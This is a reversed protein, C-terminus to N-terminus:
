GSKLDISFLGDLRMAFLVNLGHTFGALYYSILVSNDSNIKQLEIVRSQTWVTHEDPGVAKSWLCLRSNEVIASGLGGNETATLMASRRCQSTRPPLGIVYIRSTGLDYKIIRSGSDIQNASIFCLANGALVSPESHDFCVFFELACARQSWEGDESSYVYAFPSLITTVVVVVLFQGRSCDLHDCAGDKSSACLVAANWSLLPGERELPPEPLELQEGTVPDWVALRAEPAGGVSPLVGVLVRGHRSDLAYRGGLDANRPRFSATPAFGCPAGSDPVNLFPRHFGGLMPPSRHRERFRRRFGPGTVIRCWRRCVLAARALHAPDDPPSRLLVEEVLEDMGSVAAAPDM